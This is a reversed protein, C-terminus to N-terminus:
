KKRMNNKGCGLDWIRLIAEVVKLNDEICDSYILNFDIKENNNCLNVDQYKTCYNMRHDEDDRTGCTGCDNKGYGKSFNAGCDLMGYRGM